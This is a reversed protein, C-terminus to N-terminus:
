LLYEFILYFVIYSVFVKCNLKQISQFLVKSKKENFGTLNDLVFKKHKAIFQLSFINPNNLSKFYINQIDMTCVKLNRPDMNVLDPNYILIDYLKLFEKVKYFAEEGLEKYEFTPPAMLKYWNGTYDQHWLGKNPDNPSKGYDISYKEPYFQIKLPQMSAHSPNPLLKGKGLADTINGEFFANYYVKKVSDLIFFDTLKRWVEDSNDDTPWDYETLLSTLSSGKVGSNPFCLQYLIKERINRLYLKPTSEEKKGVDVLYDNVYVKISIDPFNKSHFKGQVSFMEEIKNPLIFDCSEGKSNRVIFDKIPFIKESYSKSPKEYPSIQTLQLSKDFANFYNLYSPEPAGILHIWLNDTTEVWLGKEIITSSLSNLRYEYSKINVRVRLLESSSEIGLVGTLILSSCKSQDWEILSVLNMSNDCISFLSMKVSPKNGLHYIPFINKTIPTLLIPNFYQQYKSNCPHELQYWVKDPGIAWLGKSQGATNIDFHYNQVIVKIKLKENLTERPLLEGFIIYLATPEGAPTISQPTKFNQEFVDIIGFSGIKYYERYITSQFVYNELISQFNEIEDLFVFDDVLVTSM